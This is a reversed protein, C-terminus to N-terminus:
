ASSIWLLCFRSTSFNRKFHRRCCSVCVYDSKVVSSRRTSGREAGREELAITRHGQSQARQSHRLSRLVESRGLRLCVCLRSTPKARWDLVQETVERVGAHGRSCMWLVKGVHVDLMSVNSDPSGTFASTDVGLSNIFLKLEANLTNRPVKNRPEKVSVPVAPEKRRLVAHLYKVTRQWM